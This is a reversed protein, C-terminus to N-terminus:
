TINIKYKTTLNKTLHKISRIKNTEPELLRIIEWTIIDGKRINYRIAEKYPLTIILNNKGGQRVKSIIM